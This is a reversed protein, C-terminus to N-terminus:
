PMCTDSTSISQGPVVLKSQHGEAPRRRLILSYKCHCTKRYHLIYWTSKKSTLATAYTFRIRILGVALCKVWVLTVQSLLALEAVNLRKACKLVRKTCALQALHHLCCCSVTGLVECHVWYHIDRQILWIDVKEDMLKLCIAKRLDFDNYTGRLVRRLLLTGAIPVQARHTATADSRAKSGAVSGACCEKTLNMTPESTMRSASHRHHRVDCRISTAPISTAHM